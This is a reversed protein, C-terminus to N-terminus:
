FEIEVNMKALAAKKNKKIVDPHTKGRRSKSWRSYYKEKVNDIGHKEERKLSMEKSLDFLNGLSGKKEGTVRTMKQLDDADIRSNAAANPKTWVRDWYIKGDFYIKEETM